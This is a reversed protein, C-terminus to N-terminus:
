VLIEYYIVGLSWVDSEAGFKNESRFMEPAM